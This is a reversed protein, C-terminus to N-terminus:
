ISLTSVSIPLRAVPFVLEGVMPSREDSGPAPMVIIGPLRTNYELLLVIMGLRVSKDGRELLNPEVSTDILGTRASGRWVTLAESKSSADDLAQEGGDRRSRAILRAETYRRAGRSELTLEAEFVPRGENLSRIAYVQTGENIQAAQWYRKSSNAPCLVELAAATPDSIHERLLAPGLAEIQLSVDLFRWTSENGKPREGVAKDDIVVRLWRDSIPTVRACRLWGDSNSPLHCVPVLTQKFVKYFEAVLSTRLTSASGYDSLRRRLQNLVRKRKRTTYSSQGCVDMLGPHVNPRFIAETGVEPFEKEFNSSNKLSNRM